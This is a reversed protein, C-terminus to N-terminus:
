CAVAMGCAGGLLLPLAVVDNVPGVAPHGIPGDGVEIGGIELREAVEHLLLRRGPARGFLPTAGGHRSAINGAIEPARSEARRGERGQQALLGIGFILTTFGITSSSPSSIVRIMQANM